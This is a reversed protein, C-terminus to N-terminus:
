IQEHFAKESLKKEFVRYVNGGFSECIVSGIVFNHSIEGKWSSYIAGSKGDFSGHLHRLRSLFGQKCM